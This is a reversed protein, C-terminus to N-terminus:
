RDPNKGRYRGAYQKLVAPSDFEPDFSITLFQWNTPGGKEAMLLERARQFHNSMRPCFSPLPCRTFVFTLAIARGRFESFTIWKGDESLLPQDPLVEGVRLRGVRFLSNTPGLGKAAEGGLEGALKRIGGIWSEDATVHLDFRISDGAKLGVLSEADRVELTMTMAPMYGPIAEHRVTLSQLDAPIERVVGAVKYVQAVPESSSNLDAEVRRSATASRCALCLVVWGLCIVGQVRKMRWYRGEDTAGDFM